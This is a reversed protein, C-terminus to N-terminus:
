PFGLRGRRLGSNPILQTIGVDAYIQTGATAFGGTARIEPIWAPCAASSSACRAHQPSTAANALACPLWEPGPTHLIPHGAQAEPTSRYLFQRSSRTWGTWTFIQSSQHSWASM